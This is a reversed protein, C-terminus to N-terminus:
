GVRDGTRNGNRWPWRPGGACPESGRGFVVPRELVYGRESKARAREASLEWQRPLPAPTPPEHLEHLLDSVVGDPRSQGLFGAFANM